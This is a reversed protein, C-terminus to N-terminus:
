RAGAEAQQAPAAPPTGPATPVTSPPVTSPPVTTPPVTSPPVTVPPEPAATRNQAPVGPRRTPSAPRRGPRVPRSPPLPEEEYPQEGGPWGVVAICAEEGTGWVSEDESLWTQREREKPKEGAGGAGGAMPPFFPVGGAGSGAGGDAGAGDAGPSGGSLRLDPLAARDTGTVPGGVRDRLGASGSGPAGLRGAGLGGPPLATGSLDGLGAPGHGSGGGGAPLGPIGPLDAGPEPLGPNALRAGGKGGGAPIPPFPVFPPLTGDSGGPGGPPTHGDGGGPAPLNLDNGGGSSPPPLGLDNAGGGSPPPINADNGAGGDPPPPLNGDNGGGGDPPPPLNADNGGGDPPPPPPPLNSDNGGGDPPPPPPPAAASDVGVPKTLAAIYRAADGYATSLASIATRAPVNLATELSQQISHTINTNMADWGATTRLSGGPYSNLVRTIYDDPSEAVGIKNLVWLKDLWYNPLGKQLGWHDIYDSIYNVYYTQQDAVITKLTPYAARWAISMRGIYATLAQGASDISSIMSRGHYSTLQQHLGDVWKTDNHLRHQILAAAKGQFDSDDSDLNKAWTGIDTTSGALWTSVTILANRLRQMGQLSVEGTTGVELNLVATNIAEVAKTWATAADTNYNAGYYYNGYAHYTINDSASPKDDYSFWKGLALSTLNPVAQGDAGTLNGTVARLALDFTWETSGGSAPFTPGDAM